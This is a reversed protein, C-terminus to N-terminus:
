LGLAKPSAESHNSTTIGKLRRAIGPQAAVVLPVTSRPEISFNAKPTWASLLQPSPQLGNSVTEKRISSKCKVLETSSPCTTLKSSPASVHAM